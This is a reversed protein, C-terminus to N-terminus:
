EQAILLSSVQIIWLHEFFVASDVINKGPSLNRPIPRTLVDMLRMVWMANAPAGPEVLSSAARDSV